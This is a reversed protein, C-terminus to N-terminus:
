EEERIIIRQHDDDTSPDSEVDGDDSHVNNMDILQFRTQKEASGSSQRNLLNTSSDPTVASNGGVASRDNAAIIADNQVEIDHANLSGFDEFIKDPPDSDVANDHGDDTEEDSSQHEDMMRQDYELETAETETADFRSDDDYDMRDVAQIQGNQHLVSSGSASRGYKSTLGKLNPMFKSSHSPDNLNGVMYTKTKYQRVTGDNSQLAYTQYAPAINHYVDRVVDKFSLVKKANQAVLEKSSPMGSRFEWWPFSYLHICAFVSMELCLIFDNWLEATEPELGPAFSVALGQWYTAFIVIKVAFFKRVPSYARIDSKCALYFLLLGYLALTYAVNYITNSIVRWGVSHYEGTSLMIINLMAMVPKVIIFQICSQKCFRLFKVNLAMSPLCCLPWPHKLPPKLSILAVCNAEGGVYGLILTLFCYIVFAEYIDRCTEFYLALDPYMLSLWSVLAYLPVIFLIRIIHLQQSPNTYYSIHKIVNYLSISLGVFSAFGALAACGGSKVWNMGSLDESSMM